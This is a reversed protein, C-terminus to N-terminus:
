VESLCSVKETTFRANTTWRNPLNHVQYQAYYVHKGRECNKTITIGCAVRREDGTQQDRQRLNSSQTELLSCLGCFMPIFIGNSSTLCHFPHMAGLDVPKACFEPVRGVRECIQLKLIGWFYMFNASGRIKLSLIFQSFVLRAPKQIINAIEAAFLVDGKRHPDTM